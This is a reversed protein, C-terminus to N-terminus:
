KCQLDDPLPKTNWEVARDECEKVEAETLEDFVKALTACYKGIDKESDESLNKHEASIREVFIHGCVSKATWAKSSTPHGCTDVKLKTPRPEKAHGGAYNGFWIRVCKPIDDPPREINEQAIIDSIETAVRTILKSRSKDNGCDSSDLYEDCNNVLIHRFSPHVWRAYPAM